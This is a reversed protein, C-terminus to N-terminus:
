KKKMIEEFYIYIFILTYKCYHMIGKSMELVLQLSDIMIHSDSKVVIVKLMKSGLQLKYLLFYM